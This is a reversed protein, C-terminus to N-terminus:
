EKSAIFLSVLYESMASISHGNRAPGAYFPMIELLLSLHASCVTPKWMLNAQVAFSDGALNCFEVIVNDGIHNAVTGNADVMGVQRVDEHADAALLATLSQEAGRGCSNCAWRVM